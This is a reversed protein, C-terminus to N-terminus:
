RKLLSLVTVMVHHSQSALNEETGSEDAFRYMNSITRIPVDYSSPRRFIPVLIRDDAVINCM